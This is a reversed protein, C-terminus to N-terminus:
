RFCRRRYDEDSSPPYEKLVLISEPIRRHIEAFATIITDINYHAQIVRSSLSSSTTRLWACDSAGNRVRPRRRGPSSSASGSSGRAPAPSMSSSPTRSRASDALIVDAAAVARRTRWVGYVTGAGPPFSLSTRRDLDLVDSGLASLVLPHRGLAHATWGYGSLYLGHVLDPRLARALRHAIVPALPLMWPRRQPTSRVYAHHSISDRYRTVDAGALDQEGLRGRSRSRPRRRREGLASHSALARRACLAVRMLRRELLADCVADVDADTLKPHLPLTLM